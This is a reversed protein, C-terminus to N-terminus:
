SDTGERYLDRYREMWDDLTWTTPLHNQRDDANERIQNAFMELTDALERQEAKSV